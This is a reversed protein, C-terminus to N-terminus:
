RAILIDCAFHEVFERLRGSGDETPGIEIALLRCHLQAIRRNLEAPAPPAIEVVLRVPLGALRDALWKQFGRATAVAPPSIVIMAADAAYAIRAAAEVLRAASEGRERLLLVIAGSASWARRVLLMPGPATEIASWWRALIRFHGAVPRTTAGVVVLDRESAVALASAASGRVVIFSHEVRHRQAAAAVDKAAAEAAARLHLEADRSTLRVAGAGHTVQRAFPLGALNLLEEDEVFVAHLPTKVRAALRAATDIAARIESASDLQVVVREIAESM